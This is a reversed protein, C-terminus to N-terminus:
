YEMMNQYELASAIREEPTPENAQINQADEFAAIADLYDQDETCGSFDCGAEEAADVMQSFYGFYAGNIEGGAVVTKITAAAPYREIWEAPTLIEGIPTIVASTKDWVVYRKSAM